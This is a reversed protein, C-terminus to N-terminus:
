EEIREIYSTVNKEVRKEYNNQAVITTCAFVGLFLLVLQKKM